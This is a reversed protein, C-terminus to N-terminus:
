STIILFFYQYRKKSLIKRDAFKIENNEETANMTESIFSFQFLGKIESLFCRIPPSM